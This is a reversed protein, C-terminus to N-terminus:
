MGWAGLITLLLLLCAEARTVLVEPLMESARRAAGSRGAARALGAIQASCVACWRDSPYPVLRAQDRSLGCSHQRAAAATSM